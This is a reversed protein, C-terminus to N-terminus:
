NCKQFILCRTENANYSKDLEGNRATDTEGPWMVQSTGWDEESRKKYSETESAEAPVIFIVSTLVFLVTTQGFRLVRSTQHCQLRRHRTRRKSSASFCMLEREMRKVHSFASCTLRAPLHLLCVCTHVHVCVCVCVHETFVSSSSHAGTSQCRFNPLPPLFLTLEPWTWLATPRWCPSTNPTSITKFPWCGILCLLVHQTIITKNM